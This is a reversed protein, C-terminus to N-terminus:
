SAARLGSRERNRRERILGQSIFLPFANPAMVQVARHLLSLAPDPPRQEAPTHCGPRLRCRHLHRPFRLPLLFLRHCKRGPGAPAMVYLKGGPLSVGSFFTGAPAFTHASKKKIPLMVSHQYEIFIARLGSM